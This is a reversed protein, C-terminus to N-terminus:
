QTLALLILDSTPLIGPNFKYLNALTVLNPDFNFINMYISCVPYMFDVDVQNSM